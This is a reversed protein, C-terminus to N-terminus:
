ERWGSSYQLLALPSGDSWQWGGDHALHNLGTWVIVGMDELRETSLFTAWLCASYTYVLAHTRTHTYTRAGRIYDHEATHTISLLSAGQSQCSILAQSWTLLSYLNFQYCAKLEDSSEWFSDCGPVTCFMFCLFNVPISELPKSTM